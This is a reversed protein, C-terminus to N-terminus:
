VKEILLSNKYNYLSTNKAKQALLEYNKVKEELEDIIELARALIRERYEAITGNNTSIFDKYSDLIRHVETDSNDGVTIFIAGEANLIIRYHLTQKKHIITEDFSFKINNNELYKMLFIIKEFISDSRSYIEMRAKTKNEYKPIYSM